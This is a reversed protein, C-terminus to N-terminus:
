CGVETIMVKLGNKVFLAADLHQARSAAAFNKQMKSGVAAINKQMKAGAKDLRARM